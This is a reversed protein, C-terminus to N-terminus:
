KYEESLKLVTDMLEQAKEVEDRRTCIRIQNQIQSTDRDGTKYWTGDGMRKGYVVSMNHGRAEQPLKTEKILRVKIHEKHRDMEERLLKKHQPTATASEVFIRTIDVGHEALEINLQRHIDADITGVMVGHNTAVVKDGPKILKWFSMIMNTFHPAYLVVDGNSAEKALRIAEDRASQALRRLYPDVDDQYKLTLPLNLAKDEMQTVIQEHQAVVRRQERLVFFVTGAFLGYLISIPVDRTVFGAVVAVTAALGFEGLWWLWEKGM